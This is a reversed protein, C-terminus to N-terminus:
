AHKSVRPVPVVYRAGALWASISWAENHTPNANAIGAGPTSMSLHSGGDFYLATNPRFASKYTM